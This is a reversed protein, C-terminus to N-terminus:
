YPVASKPGPAPLTAGSSKLLATARATLRKALDKAANIELVPASGGKGGLPNLWKVRLHQKSADDRDTEMETVISCQQQSFLNPNEAVEGYNGGFGFVENITQTTREFAADSLWGSWAIVEGAQAAPSLVELMLRIGPTKKETSEFLGNSADDVVVCDFNGATKLYNM